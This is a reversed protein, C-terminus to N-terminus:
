RWAGLIAGMVVFNVLHSGAEPVRAKLWVPFFTKRNFWVSGMAMSAAVCAAAAPWNVATLVM